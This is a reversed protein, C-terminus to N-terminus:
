RLIDYDVGGLWKIKQGFYKNVWDNLTITTILPGEQGEIAKKTTTDIRCLEDFVGKDSNISEFVDMEEFAKDLMNIFEFLEEEKKRLKFAAFYYYAYILLGTAFFNGQRADKESLIPYARRYANIYFPMVNWNYDQSRTISAKNKQWMYTVTPDRVIKKTLNLALFNFAGDEFWKQNPFTINNERCYEVRFAKGHVFASNNCDQITLQCNDPNYEMFATSVADPNNNKTILEAFHLLTGSTAFMDDDDIPLIYDGKAEELGHQLSPGCGGNEKNRVIRIDLFSKYYEVASEFPETSCDDVLIVEFDKFVQTMLSTLPLHIQKSSNYCPIIVSFLM